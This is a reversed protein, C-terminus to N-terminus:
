SVRGTEACPLYLLASAPLRPDSSSPEEERRTELEGMAGKRGHLGSSLGPPGWSSWWTACGAVPGLDNKGPSVSCRSRM